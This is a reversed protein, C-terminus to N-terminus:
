WNPLSSQSSIPCCRAAAENGGMEHALGRVLMDTQAADGAGDRWVVVIRNCINDDEIQIM